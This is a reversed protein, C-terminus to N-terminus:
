PMKSFAAKADITGNGFRQSLTNGQSLGIPKRATAKLINKLATPSVTASDWNSRLAAVVGAAMACAASTGTNVSSADEVERFQSPACLDPKDIDLNSQGPGQSSYGLWMADARVAGVTLVDCLSNAGWISYGPGVDAPGCRMDPCFQGCNGAAFVVDIGSQVASSVLVNFPNNPDNTYSGKPYETRTDFIGWPNVLIWPGSHAGGSRYAAIDGLMTTFAAQALSLFVPIDSIRWPLLPLDFFTVEPAVKQINHAVMMGHSRHISGLPPRTTGPQTSGIAWGGGYHSGLQSQDLGQDVIVVNVGAGSTVIRKRKRRKGNQSQLYDIGSLREAAARNAFIPDTGDTPCWHDTGAFPLDPSSGLFVTRNETSTAAGILKDVASKGTVSLSVVLTDPRPLDRETISSAVQKSPLAVVKFPPDEKSVGV